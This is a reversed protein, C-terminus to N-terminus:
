RQFLALAIAIARSQIMTRDIGPPDLFVEPAARIDEQDKANLFVYHDVDRGASELRATPVLGLLWRSCQEYPAETDAEGTFIRIPVDIRALSDETFGRVTPAPAMAFIKGVRGDRYDDSARAWSERFPASSDLLPEVYRGLDPFERPGRFGTTQNDAFARFLAMDTVAGALCFVSYGGLSFGAASIRTRDIRGALPGDTLHYGLAVTLDRPREWWALFGEARYPEVITNGHHNVALVAYGATSLAEGLWALGDAGGGTGHSLLVLPFPERVAEPPWLVWSVPRPGDGDWNPREPDFCVDRTVSFGM